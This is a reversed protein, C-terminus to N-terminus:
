EEENDMLDGMLADMDEEGIDALDHKVGADSGTAAPENKVIAQEPADEGGVSRTRSLVRCGFGDNIGDLQEMVIVHRVHQQVVDAHRKCAVLGLFGVKERACALMEEGEGTCFSVVHSPQYMNILERVLSESKAWPILPCIVSKERGDANKEENVDDDAQSREDENGDDDTEAGQAMAHAQGKLAAKCLELNLWLNQEVRKGDESYGARLPVNCLAKTATTGPVDIFRRNGEVVDWRKDKVIVITELPDPSADIMPRSRYELDNMRKCATHIGGKALGFERNHHMLRLMTHKCGNSKLCRRAETNCAALQSPSRGDFMLLMCACPSLKHWLCQADNCEDVSTSFLTEAVSAVLKSDVGPRCFYFVNSKLVSEVTSFYSFNNKVDCLFMIKSDKKCSELMPHKHLLAQLETTTAPMVELCTYALCRANIKAMIGTMVTEELADIRMEDAVKLHVDPFHLSSNKVGPPSAEDPVDVAMTTMNAEEEDEKKQEAKSVSASPAEPEPVPAAPAVSKVGPPGAEVLFKQFDFVEPPLTSLFGEATVLPEAGLRTFTLDRLDARNDWFSALLMIADIVPQPLAVIWSPVSGDSVDATPAEKCSKGRPFMEHFALPSKHITVLAEQPGRGPGYKVGEPAELKVSKRLCVFIRRVLLMYSVVEKMRAVSVSVPMVGRLTMVFTGEVVWRLYAGSVDRNEVSTMGCVLDLAKGKVLTHGPGLVSEMQLLIDVCGKCRGHVRLHTQIKKVSLSMDDDDPMGDKSLQKQTDHFWAAIAPATSKCGPRGQLMQQVNVIELTRRIGVLQIHDGLQKFRVGTAWKSKYAADDSVNLEFRVKFARALQAFGTTDQGAEKCEAWRWLFGLRMEDLGLPALAADPASPETSTARVPVAVPQWAKGADKSVVTSDPVLADKVRRIAGLTPPNAPHTFTYM